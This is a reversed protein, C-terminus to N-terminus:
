FQKKKEYKKVYLSAELLSDFTGADFWKCNRNLIYSHLKNKKIYLNNLDTIELEGRSSYNLSEALEVVNNDYFYLGTVAYKSKPFKPKETVKKIIKKTDLTAVGYRTPNDVAYLFIHSDNSNCIKLLEKEFNKGIFINDGLILAVNSKGIFRKGILFAEAIGQPKRQISYNLSIGFKNGNGLHKKFIPLNYKDSILLIEKVGSQILTRLPYYIMPKNYIPLLQKSIIKTLPFLRSGHGGALIIGKRNNCNSNM